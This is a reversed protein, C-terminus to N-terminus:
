PCTADHCHLTARADFDHHDEFPNVRAMTPYFIASACCKQAFGRKGFGTPAVSTRRYDAGSAFRPSLDFLTPRRSLGSVTMRKNHSRAVPFPRHGGDEQRRTDNSTFGTATRGHPYRPGPGPRQPKATKPLRRGCLAWFRLLLEKQFYALHFAKGPKPQPRSRM